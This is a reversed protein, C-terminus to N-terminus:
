IVERGQARLPSVGSRTPRVFSISFLLALLEATPGYPDRQYTLYSLL